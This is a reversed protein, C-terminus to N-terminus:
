CISRLEKAQFQGDEKFSSVLQLNDTTRVPDCIPCTKVPRYQSIKHKPSSKIALVCSDRRLNSFDLETAVFYEM